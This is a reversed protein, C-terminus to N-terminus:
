IGLFYVEPIIESTGENIFPDKSGSDLPVLASTVLLSCGISLGLVSWLLSIISYFGNLM